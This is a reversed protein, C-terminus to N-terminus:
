ARAKRAAPAALGLVIPDSWAPLTIAKNPCEGACIGCQRCAEARCDARREAEHIGMAKFPCTRVCTLCLVCKDGDVVAHATDVSMRRPALFVHAALAAVHADRLVAPLWTEGRCAGVAFVGRRNTAVPLLRSSNDQFRSLADLDLGLMGALHADAPSRLGLPSIAAIGCSLRVDEGTVSDCATIAVEGDRGKIVPVGTYKLVTVGAERAADYAQNLDMAAVKADRVLLTVAARYTRQAEVAIRYAECCSAMGEDIELDLVIACARPLERLRLGALHGILDPLPVIKGPAFPSAGTDALVLGTAAIVAGFTREVPGSPGLLRAPFSGPCGDFASLTTSPLVEIGPVKAGAAGAGAAVASRDIVTVAHGLGALSRAAELGAPGAGIVLVDQCPKWRRTEFGPMAELASVARRIGPLAAAAILPLFVVHPAPLGTEEAVTAALGAREIVPCGALVIRDIGHERIKGVIAERGAASCLDKVIEVRGAGALQKLDSAAAKTPFARECACAFVGTM